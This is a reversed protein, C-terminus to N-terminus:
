ILKQYVDAVDGDKKRLNIFHIIVAMVSAVALSGFIFKESSTVKPQNELTASLSVAAPQYVWSTIEGGGCACCHEAATFDDDDYDGCLNERGWYWDCDDM